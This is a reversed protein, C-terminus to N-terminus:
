IAHKVKRFMNEFAVKKETKDRQGIVFNQAKGILFMQM